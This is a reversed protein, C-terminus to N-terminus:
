HLATLTAQGTSGTFSADVGAYHATITHTGAKGPIWNLTAKGGTLLVPVGGNLAGAKGGFTDTFVISGVQPVTGLFTTDIVTATLTVWHSDTVPNPAVRLTTRTEDSTIGSRLAISQKAYNPAAANLNNDTLLLSGSIPGSAVPAFNIAFVCSTGADVKGAPGSPGVVPCTTAGALNFSTSISPNTGSGPVPFQLAANGINSVTVSQPSDTSTSGVTTSAFSLPPPDAVDIM